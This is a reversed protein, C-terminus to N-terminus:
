SACSARSQRMRVIACPQLLVPLVVIAFLLRSKVESPAHPSCAAVPLAHALYKQFIAHLALLCRRVTARVRVACRGHRIPVFCSM